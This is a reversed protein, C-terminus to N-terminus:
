AGSRRNAEAPRSPSSAAGQPSPNTPHAERQTDATLELFMEELGAGDAARFEILPVGARHALHGVLETDADIRLLHAPVSGAPAAVSPATPTTDTYTVGAATLAVKPQDPRRTRVQTGAARVWESREYLDARQWVEKPRANV